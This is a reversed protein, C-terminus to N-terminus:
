VQGIVGKVGSKLLTQDFLHLGLGDGGVRNLQTMLKAIEAISDVLQPDHQDEALSEMRLLNKNVDKELQLASEVANKASAWESTPAPVSPIVAHGGRKNQYDILHQAHEREEESQENFFKELGPLAVTDSGMYAAIALYTQSATMELSIQQNLADEVVNSFNQKALSM